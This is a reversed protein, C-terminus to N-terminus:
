EEKESPPGENLEKLIERSTQSTNFTYTGPTVEYDFFKAQVIISYKNTILGKNELITAAEKADTGEPITVKVDHGPPEEVSEAYFISHGFEYSAKIGRAAIVIVVAIVVVRIAILIVTGTIKNIQKTTKSM